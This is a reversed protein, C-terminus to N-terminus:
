QVKGCRVACYPRKSSVASVASVAVGTGHRARAIGEGHPLELVEILDLRHQRLLGVDLAEPNGSPHELSPLPLAVRLNSPDRTHM